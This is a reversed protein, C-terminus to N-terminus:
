IMSCGCCTDGRLFQATVWDMTDRHNLFWPEIQTAIFARAGATDGALAAALLARLDALVAEHEGHHHPYAFFDHTRMLQDERAFHGTLHEVLEGFLATFAADDTGPFRALLTLMAQHDADMVDNGVKLSDTWVLAM